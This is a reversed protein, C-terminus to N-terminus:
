CNLLVDRSGPAQQGWQAPAGPYGAMTSVPYSPAGYGAGGPAGYGAGYGAGYSPYGPGYGQYGM